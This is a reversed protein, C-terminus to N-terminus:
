RSLEMGFEKSLDRRKLELVGNKNYKIDVVDGEEPLTDFADRDHCVIKGYRDVKQYVLGDKISVIVGNYSGSKVREVAPGTKEAFKIKEAEIAENVAIDFERDVVSTPTKCPKGNPPCITQAIIDSSEFEGDARTV